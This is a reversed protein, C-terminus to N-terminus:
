FSRFNGSFNFFWIKVLEVFIWDILYIWFYKEHYNITLYIFTIYLTLKISIRVWYFPHFIKSREVRKLPTKLYFSQPQVWSSLQGLFGRLKRLHEKQMAYTKCCILCECAFRNKVWERETFKHFQVKKHSDKFLHFAFFFYNLCSITILLFCFTHM